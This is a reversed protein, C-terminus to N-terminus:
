IIIIKMEKENGKMDKEATKRGKMNMHHWTVSKKTQTKARSIWIRNHWEIDMSIIIKRRRGNYKWAMCVYEHKREKGENECEYRINMEDDENYQWQQKMAMKENWMNGNKREKMRRMNIIINKM